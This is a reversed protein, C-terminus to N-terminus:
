RATEAKLEEDSKKKYSEKLADIAEAIPRIKKIQKESYTGFLKELLGM